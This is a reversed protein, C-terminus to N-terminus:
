VTVRSRFPASKSSTEVMPILTVTYTQLRMDVSGDEAVLYFLPMKGNLKSVCTFSYRDGYEEDVLTKAGTFAFKAYDWDAAAATGYDTDYDDTFYLTGAKLTVTYTTAFMPILGHRFTLQQNGNQDTGLTVASANQGDVTVALTLAANVTGAKASIVVTTEDDGDTLLYTGVFANPTLASENATKHCVIPDYDEETVTARNNEFVITVTYSGIISGYTITGTVTGGSIVIEDFEEFEDSDELGWENYRFQGDAQLEVLAVGDDDCYLGAADALATNAPNLYLDTGITVSNGLSDCYISTIFAIEANDRYSVVLTGDRERTLAYPFTGTKTANPSDTWDASVVTLTGDKAFSVSEDFLAGKLVYATGLLKAYQEYSVFTTEAASDEAKRMALYPQDFYPYLIYATEAGDAEATFRIAPFEASTKANIAYYWTFPYDTATGNLRVTHSEFDISLTLADKGGATFYDNQSSLGAAFLAQLAQAGAETYYGAVAAYEGPAKKEILALGGEMTWVLYRQNGVSIAVSGLAAMGKPPKIEGRDLDTLVTFASDARESGFFVGDAEVRLTESRDTYTGFFAKAAREAVYYSVSANTELSIALENDAAARITYQESGARFRFVIVNEEIVPTLAYETGDLVIRDSNPFSLSKEGYWTGSLFTADYGYLLESGDPGYARIGDLTYVLTYANGDQEYAIGAGYPGAAVRYPIERGKVSLTGNAKDVRIYNGSEGVYSGSFLADTPTYELDEEALYLNGNENITYVVGTLLVEYHIAANGNEDYVLRTVATYLMDEDYSGDAELNTWGFYGDQDPETILLTYVEEEITWVGAFRDPAPLFTREPADDPASARRMELAGEDNLRLAYERGDVNMTIVTNEREGSIGTVKLYDAGTLTRESLDLIEGRDTWRIAFAGLDIRPETVATLEVDRTVNFTYPNETSVTKGDETWGVFDENEGVTATVTCQAGSEFTGGGTGGVVTVTFTAPAKRETIATLTIDGTVRFTYPNEASVETGDAEWRLFNEDEGVTATVTCQAGSEFTGGGTGGVVTVTYFDTGPKCAFLFAAFASLILALLWNKKVKM